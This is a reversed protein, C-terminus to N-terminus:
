GKRMRRRAMGLMGATATGLLVLSSPEPTTAPPSPPTANVVLRVQASDANDGIGPYTYSWSQNTGTGQLLLGLYQDNAAIAAQILSTVDVTNAANTTGTVTGLNTTPASSMYSLTGNSAYATILDSGTAIIGDNLKYSLTASTVTYGLLSSLNVQANVQSIPSNGNAELGFLHALTGDTTTTYEGIFGTGTYSLGTAPGEYDTGDYIDLISFTITSAHAAFPLMAALCCVISLLLSSKKM